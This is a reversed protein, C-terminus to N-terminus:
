DPKESNLSLDSLPTEAQILRQPATGSFVRFLGPRVVFECVTSTILGGVIVTAVPYLIERGPLQGGLILPVLGIGTTLATMLVPALRDLSGKLILDDLEDVGDNAEAINDLYTQMLLLGNRAAIGGLSVFGVMAAVSMTQGTLLLAAVVFTVVYAAVVLQVLEFEHGRLNDKYFIFYVFLSLFVLSVLVIGITNSAPLQQGLTWVEETLAVPIGLM